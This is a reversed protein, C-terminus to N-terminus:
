KPCDGVRRANLEDYTRRHDTRSDVRITYAEASMVELVSESKTTIAGSKCTASYRYTQGSQTLPTLKCGPGALMAQRAKQEATPDSCRTNSAQDPTSSTGSMTREFTWLGPKFVPWDAAQVTSISCVLLAAISFVRFATGTRIPTTTM